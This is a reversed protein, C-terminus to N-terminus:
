NFFKHNLCEKATLREKHDYVLIKDLLDICDNVSQKDKYIEAHESSLFTSLKIRNENLHLVQKLIGSPIDYTNLYTKFDNLGLIRVTEELQDYNRTSSFFPKHFFFIEALICGFSFVDLSYDYFPYGVLLEPAKYYKSAVRVSYEYEKTYFEALGWDIIKVKKNKINLILNQPKLDRHMIGKSHAYDLGELIQRFYYKLDSFNYNEFYSLFEQHEIKDFILSYTLSDNDYVVDILKIINPHDEINLQKLIIIERNVKNIRVPKLVKIVIKDGNNKFGEFVESYRGKGIKRYISYNDIDGREIIYDNYNRYPANYDLETYIKSISSKM